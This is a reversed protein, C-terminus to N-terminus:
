EEWWWLLNDVIFDATESSSGISMYGTNTQLDYIGHPIVKGASLHEYDHDYVKIAKTCYCKGDRYLNGLREKKKSDISVVPSKLSMILVVSCIIQFQENRRGYSGTALQKSQKRYAYGLEKLVRKVFGHSVKFQYHQEFLHAVERPKVSIWYLDADTPSGAKLTEIFASLLATLDADKQTKKKRGGGAKRQRKVLAQGGQVLLELQKKGEIITTRSIGLLKSIYSTGGRGLKVAEIAAYHRRDKESLHSYHLVMLLETQKTYSSVM